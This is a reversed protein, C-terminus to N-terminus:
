RWRAAETVCRELDHFHQRLQDLVFGLAFIREVTEVPLGLTLRERRVEAFAEACADFAAEVADPPPPNRRGTLADASGSLYGAATKTMETLLPAFKEQFTEPLPASATRGIMVTDHRLRLLTRQLPGLAPEAAYFNLREHRAEAAIADYRAFAEGIGVQIRGVAMTDNSEMLGSFLEPLARAMLDLMHAAAEIALAHARTPLVFSVALATLGGLTVEVVRYVASGVPGAHAIGPLLVVLVGTFTAASFSPYIAALLALPAVTIALLVLLAIENTHPVLTALAGAYVAGSLTGLLYNITAKVSSGFSVQTLIVATLVTWLPLPVHLLSAVVFGLVAATTVRLALKLHGRHKEALSRLSRWMTAISGM